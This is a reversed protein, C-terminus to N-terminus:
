IGQKSLFQIAAERMTIMKKDVVAWDVKREVMDISIDGERNIIADKQGLSSLLEEIRSNMSGIHGDVLLALFPTHFILCFAVGHFSNTVVFSADRIHALWGIPTPLTYGPHLKTKRVDCNIIKINLFSSITKKVADADKEKGHLMYSFLYKEGNSKSNILKNYYNSNHLLTPDVVQVADSRGCLTHVLKIGSPERVSISDMKTLKAKLITQWENSISVLSSHGFSAAYSIRLTNKGAFSLFYLDVLEEFQSLWKPNWIQDSGTILIDYDQTYKRLKDLSYFVTETRSLHKKRFLEFIYHMRLTEWKKICKKPTSGLLKKIISVNNVKPRFDIIDVKHERQKLFNTLANAQIVAGYNNSWQFTTIGIRM